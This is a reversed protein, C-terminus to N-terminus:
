LFKIKEDPVKEVYYGLSYYDNPNFEAKNMYNWAFPKFSPNPLKM